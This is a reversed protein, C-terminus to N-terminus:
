GLSRGSLSDDNDGKMLCVGLSVHTGKGSGIGNAHVETCMKYGEGSTSFPPSFINKCKVKNVEFHKM